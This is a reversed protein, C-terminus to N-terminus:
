EGERKPMKFQKKPAIVNLAQVMNDMLRTVRKSTDMDRNNTNMDLENEVSEVLKDVDFESYKSVINENSSV